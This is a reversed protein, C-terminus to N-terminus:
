QLQYEPSQLMANFLLDLQERLDVASENWRTNWYAADFSDLFRLKFYQMREYTIEANADVGTLSLNQSVPLLYNALAKVLEDVDPAEANFHQQVFELGNLALISPNLSLTNFLDRIFNYRRALTNPTIWSRHYIPFQHYAEYGAVDFPEYFNMGLEEISGLMVGTREYFGTADTNMSPLEFSFTRLTGVVLDIPSKIIGGFNDDIFGGNNSDYFHESCLLNEVVPQLKYGSAIFTDAMLEIIEEDIRAVLSGPTYEEHPAYVFFRYIKWCIQKATDRNSYIIDVLQRIEDLASEETPLDGNLLSTDPTVTAGGFRHSFVKPDKDHASANTPNGKVVGRPLLTDPDISQFSDDFAWGTLVRAAAQVDEETYLYYDGPDLNKLNPHGELGRGISFLELLERAYNENESGKVNLNGDLLVLMANDISIKITLTKFNVEPLAYKDTAFQRFLQNQFYLARSSQIKSAIATFHTHLFLVLKERAAHALSDEAPVDASMMQGLFWGLFYRELDFGESNAGTAGTTVWEQGTQPDIPPPPIPLPTAPFLLAIAQAPTRQAYELIQAPTAGFTARRLLHAARKIGLNGGYEPLPM